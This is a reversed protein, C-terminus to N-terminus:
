KSNEMQALAKILPDRGSMEDIHAIRQETMTRYTKKSEHPPQVEVFKEIIEALKETLVVIRDRQREARVSRDYWRRADLRNLDM